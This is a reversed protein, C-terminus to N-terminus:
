PARSRFGPGCCRPGAVPADEGDDEEEVGDDVDVGGGGGGGDEDEDDGTPEADDAKELNPELALRGNELPVVAAVAAVAVVDVDGSPTATLPSVARLSAM